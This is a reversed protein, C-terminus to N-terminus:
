NTTGERNSLLATFSWGQLGSLVPMCLHSFSPCDGQQDLHQAALAWFSLITCDTAKCIQRHDGSAPLQNCVSMANSGEDLYQAQLTSPFPDFFNCHSSQGVQCDERCILCKGEEHRCDACSAELAEFLVGVM